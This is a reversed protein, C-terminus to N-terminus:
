AEKVKEKQHAKGFLLAGPNIPTESLQSQNPNQSNTKMGRKMRGKACGAEAGRAVDRGNSKGHVNWGGGKRSESSHQIDIGPIWDLLPFSM